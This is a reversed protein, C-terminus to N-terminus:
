ETEPRMAAIMSGELTVMELAKVGLSVETLPVDVSVKIKCLGFPTARLLTLKVSVKGVEGPFITAVVGTTVEVLPQPVGVKEGVAPAAEMENEFPVLAAVPLQMTLTFTVAGVAPVYLLVEPCRYIPVVSVPLVALALRATLLAGVGGAQVGPRSSALHVM